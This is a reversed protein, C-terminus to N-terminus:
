SNYHGAFPHVPERSGGKKFFHRSIQLSNFHAFNKADDGNDHTGHQRTATAMAVAAVLFAGAASAAGAVLKLLGEPSRFYTKPM